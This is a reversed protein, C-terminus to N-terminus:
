PKSRDGNLWVIKLSIWLCVFGLIFTLIRIFGLTMGCIFMSFRNIKPLEPRTFPFYKKNIQDPVNSMAKFYAMAYM